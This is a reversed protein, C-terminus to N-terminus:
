FNLARPFPLLVLTTKGDKKVVVKRCCFIRTNEEREEKQVKELGM